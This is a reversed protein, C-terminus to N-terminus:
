LKNTEMEIPPRVLAWWRVWQLGFFCLLPVFILILSPAVFYWGGKNVFDQWYGYTIGAITVWVIIKGLIKWRDELFRFIFFLGPITLMLYEPSSRFNILYVIVFTLLTKWIFIRGKKRFSGFWEILMYVVLGINIIFKLPEQAGKFTNSIRMLPTSIWSFGPYVMIFEKAYEPLWGPFLIFSITFLFVLGLLFSWLVSLEKHSISWILLFISIIIGIELSGVTLALLLGAATTKREILLYIVLIFLFIYIPISNGFLISRLGPFWILAFLILLIKEIWHVKWGTIRLSLLISASISAEIVLIWIARSLDFNLFSFPIYFLLYFVPEVFRIDEINKIEYGREELITEALTSNSQNYPSIGEGIWSKAVVYRIAFQDRIQHERAVTINVIILLIFGSIILLSLLIPILNKKRM